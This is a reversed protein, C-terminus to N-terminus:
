KTPHQDGGAKGAHWVVVVMLLLSPVSSEKYPVLVKGDQAQPPSVEAHDLVNIAQLMTRPKLCPLSVGSLFALSPCSSHAVYPSDKGRWQKKCVQMSSCFDGPKGGGLKSRSLRQTAGEQM